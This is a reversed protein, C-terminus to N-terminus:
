EDRSGGTDPQTRALLRQWAAHQQAVVGQAQTRSIKQVVPESPVHLQAGERVLNLNPQGDIRHFAEPNHHLLAVMGRDVSDDDSWLSAAIVRLTEGHQVPGYMREPSGHGEQLVVADIGAPHSPAKAQAELMVHEVRAPEGIVPVVTAFRGRLSELLRFSVLRHVPDVELQWGEGALVTLADQLTTPGIQRHVEPLPRSMLIAVHPDVNRTDALQYGSPPLLHQLAGGVTQVSRPFRV